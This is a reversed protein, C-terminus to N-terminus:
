SGVNKKVLKCLKSQDYSVLSKQSRLILYGDLNPVRKGSISLQGEIFACSDHTRVLPSLNHFSFARDGTSAM